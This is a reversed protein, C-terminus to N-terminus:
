SRVFLGMAALFFCSNLTLSKMVGM